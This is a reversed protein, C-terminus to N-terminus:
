SKGRIVAIGRAFFYVNLLVFLQSVVRVDWSDRVKWAALLALPAQWGILLAALGGDLADGDLLIRTLAYGIALLPLLCYVPPVVLSPLERWHFGHSKVGQFNSTARWLEKRFFHRLDAAEGHHVAVIRRDAIIKGLRMLRLSLDYDECTVLSEDFGGVALFTKRPIFMNMSELWEVEIVESKKERVRFWAKQVWTGEDPIGPPGGFCAIENNDLYHAASALWTPAVTCDADLFALIKGGAKSAGFNRLGSITLDPMVFVKAGKTRVIEVTRDSSGNDIVLVEFRGTEFDMANISDLCHGINKEENKAPIIISFDM